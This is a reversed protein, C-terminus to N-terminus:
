EAAALRALNQRHRRRGPETRKHVARKVHSKVAAGSTMATTLADESLFSGIRDMSGDERAQRSRTTVIESLGGAWEEAVIRWVQEASTTAQDVQAVAWMRLERYNPWEANIVLEHQDVDYRAVGLMPDDPRDDAFEWRVSPPQWDRREQASLTRYTLTSVGSKVKAHLLKANPSNARRQEIRERAASKKAESIQEVYTDLADLVARVADPYRLEVVERDKIVIQQWTLRKLLTYCHNSGPRDSGAGSLERLVDDRHLVQDRLLREILPGHRDHALAEILWVAEDPISTSEAITRLTVFWLDRLARPDPTDQTRTTRRV